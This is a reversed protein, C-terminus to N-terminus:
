SNPMSPGDRAMDQGLLLHLIHYSANVPCLALSSPDWTVDAWVVMHCPKM